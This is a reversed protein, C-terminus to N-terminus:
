CHSIVEPVYTVGDRDTYYIGDTAYLYMSLAMAESIEKNKSISYFGIFPEALLRANENEYLM